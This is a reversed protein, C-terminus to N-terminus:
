GVTLNRRLRDPSAGLLHCFECAQVVDNGMVVYEFVHDGNVRCAEILREREDQQARLTVKRGALQREMEHVRDRIDIKKM